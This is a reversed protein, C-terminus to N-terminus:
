LDQSAPQGGKFDIVEVEFILDSNPPIATGAGRSGYATESPCYLVAKQGKRLELVAKEWCDIVHGRGADFKFTSQKGVNTDFVVGSDAFKGTYVMEVRAGKPVLPGTGENLKEVKYTLPLFFSILEVEFKLTSNAPIKKTGRDGYAYEPPCTLIAKAGKSLQAFGEDWCKIVKGRGLPFTFPNGRSVSSDFVTGDLLTGTYHATVQSGVQPLM